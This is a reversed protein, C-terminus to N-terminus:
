RNVAFLGLGILYIMIQNEKLHLHQQHHLMDKYALRYTLKMNKKNNGFILYKFYFFIHIKTLYIKLKFHYKSIIYM